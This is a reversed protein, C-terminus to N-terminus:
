AHDAEKNLLDDWFERLRPNKQCLLAMVNAFSEGAHTQGRKSKRTAFYANKPSRKPTSFYSDLKTQNRGDLAAVKPPDIIEATM